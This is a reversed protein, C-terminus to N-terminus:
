RFLKIFVNRILIILFLALLGLFGLVAGPRPKVRCLINAVGGGRIFSAGAPGAWWTAVASAYRDASGGPTCDLPDTLFVILASLQDSSVTYPAM